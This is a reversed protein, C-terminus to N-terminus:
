LCNHFITCVFALAYVFFIMGVILIYGAYLVLRAVLTFADVYHALLWSIRV